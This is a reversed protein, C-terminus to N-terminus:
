ETDLGHLAIGGFSPWARWANELEPLVSRMASVRGHYTTHGATRNITHSYAYTKVRTNALPADLMLLVARDGGPLLWLEGAGGPRYVHLSEDPLPGAELGIRISKGNRTGWALFPEAFGLIQRKETRYNMVTVVDVHPHLHDLFLGKRYPQRGWWFPVAIDLRIAAQGRISSITDLYASLWSETDVSYGRNLYPEIDLQLGALRAQDGATRNYTAYASAMSAYRNREESLVARPDGIVAWVQVRLSTAQRVFRELALPDAVRSHDATLPVSIFVTDARNDALLQLTADARSYWAAPDWIWLSRGPVATTTSQAELRMSRLSLRAASHPCALVWFQWSAQELGKPLPHLAAAARPEITAFLLPDGTRERAADAAGLRFRGDATADVRLALSAGEPLGGGGRARLLAGAPAHGAACNLRLESGSRTITVRNESGYASAQLEPLLESALPLTAPPPAEEHLPIIEQPASTRSQGGVTQLSVGRALSEAEQRGIVRAWQVRDASVPVKTMECGPLPARAAALRLTAGAPQLLTDLLRAGSLEAGNSCTGIWAEAAQTVPATLLLPLLAARICGRATM